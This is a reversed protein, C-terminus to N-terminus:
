GRIMIITGTDRVVELIIDMAEEIIFPVEIDVELIKIMHHADGTPIIELGAM